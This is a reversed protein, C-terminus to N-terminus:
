TIRRLYYRFFPTVSFTTGAPGAINISAMLARGEKIRRPGSSFRFWKGTTPQSDLQYPRWTYLVPTAQEAVVITHHEIHTWNDRSIDTAYLPDLPEFNGTAPDYDAMYLGFGVAVLVPSTVSSPLAILGPELGGQITSIEYESVPEPTGPAIPAQPINGCVMIPTAPGVGQTVPVGFINTTRWTGSGRVSRRRNSKAM